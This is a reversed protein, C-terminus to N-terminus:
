ANAWQFTWESIKAIASESIIAGGHGVNPCLYQKEKDLMVHVSEPPVLEDEDGSVSYFLAKEPHKKMRQYTTEIEDKLDKCFWSFKNPIYHLRGAVSVMMSVNVALDDKFRRWIWKSAVLAGLSHGILAIEVVEAGAKHSLIAVEEIKKALPALPIPDEETQNFELVTFVNKIEKKEFAEAMPFFCFSGGGTGPLLIVARAIKHNTKSMEIKQPNISYPNPFLLSVFFNFANTVVSGFEKIGLEFVLDWIRQIRTWFTLPGDQRVHSLISPKVPQCAAVSNM